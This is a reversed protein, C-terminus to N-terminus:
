DHAGRNLIETLREDVNVCKTFIVDEQFKGRKREHIADGFAKITRPIGDILVAPIFAITMLLAKAWWSIFYQIKLTHHERFFYYEVKMGFRQKRKPFIQNHEKRSVRIVEAGHTVPSEYEYDM